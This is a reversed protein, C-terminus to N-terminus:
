NDKQYPSWFPGNNEVPPDPGCTKKGYSFAQNACIGGQALLEAGEPIDFTDEHWQLVMFESPFGNFLKSKKGEPTLEIMYHGIEKHIKGNVTHEEVNAGLAHAILQGGLCIGLMPIKEINESIIKLEDEMSPFGRHVSMPGGLIILADYGAIDPITYPEWLRVVDLTINNERAYMHIRSPHERVVHQFILVRRKDKM